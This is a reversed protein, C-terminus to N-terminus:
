CSGRLACHQQRCGQQALSSISEAQEILAALAPCLCPLLARIQMLDRIVAIDASIQTSLPSGAQGSAPSAAASSPDASSSLSHQPPSPPAPATAM